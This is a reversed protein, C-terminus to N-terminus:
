PSAEPEVVDGRVIVGLGGLKSSVKFGARETANPNIQFRIAKGQLFLNIMGGSQAFPEFDSVTLVSRRAVSKLVPVLRDKESRSVFLIHCNTVIEGRRAYVIQIPHGDVSKGTLTQQLAPGFPDEGLVALIMPSDSQPFSNTPWTIFKAFNYLFAAKIQYEPLEATEARTLPPGLTLVVAFGLLVYASWAAGRKTIHTFTIM